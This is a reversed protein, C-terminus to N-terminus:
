LPPPLQDVEITTLVCGLSIVGDLHAETLTGDGDEVETYGPTRIILALHEIPLSM